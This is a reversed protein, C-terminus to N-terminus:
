ASSGGSAPRDAQLTPQAARLSMLAITLLTVSGVIWLGVWAKVEPPAAAFAETASGKNQLLAPVRFILAGEVVWLGWAAFSLVAKKSGSADPDVIVSM